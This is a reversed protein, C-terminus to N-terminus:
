KKIAISNNGNHLFRYDHEQFWDLLELMQSFKIHESEFVILSPEYELALILDGDIGEVDLHLWDPASDAFENKILENVSTSSRKTETIVSDQLFGLIVPKYVTDTFGEGGTYWTVDKGDTTIIENIFKTGPLNSYHKKCEALQPLSGDVLVCDTLGSIVPFIWHGFLGDHCGIVLGSPRKRLSKVFHWVTKELLDGDREVKFEHTTVLDGAATKILVDVPFSSGKWSVWHNEFLDAEWVKEKNVSKIFEARLPLDRPKFFTFKDLKVITSNESRDYVIDIM